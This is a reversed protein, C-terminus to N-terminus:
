GNRSIKKLLDLKLLKIEKGKSGIIKDAKFKSIVRSANERSVGVIESVEQRTLPMEFNQSHYINESLHLLLDAIRGNTNKQSQSILKFSGYLSERCVYVLLEYAFAANEKVISKFTDINIFCVESDELASYSYYNIDEGFLSHLGLYSNPKVIDLIKTKNNQGTFYEKVYGKRLFVIHSNRVGSRIIIEKKKISFERSNENLDDVQKDTLVLSCSRYRCTKCNTKKKLTFM